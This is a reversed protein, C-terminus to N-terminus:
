RERAIPYRLHERDYFPTKEYFWQLRARPDGAFERDSLLKQRFEAALEADEELMRAAMPEMVYAEVYETRNLIELMFGWQFYSDPSEPELLLMALDGLPQDTPVRWSGPALSLVTEEIELPGPDVRAHGEFPNRSEALKAEPLRYMEVEVDTTQDLKELRIGHLALREAIESWVAPVYYASPREATAAAKTFPIM